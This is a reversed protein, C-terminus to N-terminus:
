AFWVHICFWIFVFAAGVFLLAILLGALVASCIVQLTERRSMPPPKPGDEQGDSAKARRRGPRPNSWPMGDVDMPAIVRGDDDDYQRPPKKKRLM